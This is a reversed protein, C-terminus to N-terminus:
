SIRAAMGSQETKRLRIVWLAAALLASPILMGVAALVFCLGIALWTDLSLLVPPENALAMVFVAILIGTTATCVLWTIAFIRHPPM